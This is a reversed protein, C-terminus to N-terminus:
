DILDVLEQIAKIIFDVEEPTNYFFFSVRVSADYGLKAAFPQACHHGARVAIGRLNLFAAVDHSHYPEVLFSVLHGRKKLEEIPGLIKVRDILSLGDILQSCLSAEYTCLDDFNINNKIYDIAAGLGIVQAIPPTGAEFKHPANLWTADYMIANQVMGGGVRYPEVDNHLEKKIFLVGVGTPAMIKHGSFVLFDGDLKKVDIKQHAISQAADILVRAGVVRAKKIILGIDNHTGVANSVHVVSVLKTSETIITDLHSVDLTGDPLVPIFRLTAGTEQAVRQWPLLNAHHELETIVINDGVGIHRKAWAQAVFNIGDTTGSTFIIEQPHANIFHAVKERADEYRQTAKEAFTHIGRYINSNYRTYCEVVADIVSQPKHTTAANDCYILRNGDISQSLIPFDKRLQKFTVSM